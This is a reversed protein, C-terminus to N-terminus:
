ASLASALATEVQLALRANGDSDEDLLAPVEGIVVAHLERLASVLETYTDMPVVAVPGAAVVFRPRMEITLTDNSFDGGIVHGFQTPTRTAAAM